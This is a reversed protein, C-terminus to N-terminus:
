RETETTGRKKQPRLRAAAIAVAALLLVALVANVPRSLMNIGIKIGHKARQWFPREGVFMHEVYERWGEDTIHERARDLVEDQADFSGGWQPATYIIALEYANRNNPDLRTSNEFAELFEPSYDGITWMRTSWLRSNYDNIALAKSVARGGFDKLVPFQRQGKASVENWYGTGRLMWAHHMLATGMSWWARYSDPFRLLAARCVALADLTYGTDGLADCLVLMPTPDQPREVVIKKLRAVKKDFLMPRDRYGIYRAVAFEIGPEGPFIEHV